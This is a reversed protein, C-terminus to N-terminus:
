SPLNRDADCAALCLFWVRQGAGEGDRLVEAFRLFGFVARQRELEICLPPLRAVDRRILDPHPIARWRWEVHLWRGVHCLERGVVGDGCSLANYAGVGASATRQHRDAAFRAHVTRRAVAPKEYPREAFRHLVQFAFPLLGGLALGALHVGRVLM